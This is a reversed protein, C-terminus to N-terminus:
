VALAAYVGRSLQGLRPLEGGARLPKALSQQHGVYGTRHAPDPHRRDTILTMIRLCHHVPLRKCDTGIGEGAHFLWLPAQKAEDADAAKHIQFAIGGASSDPREDSGPASADIVQALAAITSAEYFQQLTVNQGRQRLSSLVRVVGISNGGLSFFDDHVNFTHELALTQVWLEYLQRETKTEPMRPPQAFRLVRSIAEVKGPEASIQDYFRRLQKRDFKNSHAQPIADLALWLSPTAYSPLASKCARVLKKVWPQCAEPDAVLAVSVEGSPALTSSIFALLHEQGELVVLQVVAITNTETMLVAEVEGVDVRLGRIKIFGGDQRGLYEIQGDCTWRALDGTKYLMQGPHFPNPHFVEATKEPLNLYGRGVQSGAVVLEGVAAVPLLRMSSDVIYARLDGLPRGIVGPIPKVEASFSNSICHVTVETPGYSCRTLGNITSSPTIFSSV